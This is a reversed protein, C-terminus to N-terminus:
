LQIPGNALKQIVATRVEPLWADLDAEDCLIRHPPSIPQM